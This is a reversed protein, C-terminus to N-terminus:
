RRKKYEKKSARLPICGLFTALPRIRLERFPCLELLNRTETNKSDQVAHPALHRCALALM